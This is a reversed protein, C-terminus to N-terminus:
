SVIGIIFCRCNWEGHCEKNPCKPLNDIDASQEGDWRKCPLCTNKDLIAFYEFHSIDQNDFEDERGSQITLNASNRALQEFVKQSEDRLREELVDRAFDELAYLLVSINTARNRIQSVPVVIAL